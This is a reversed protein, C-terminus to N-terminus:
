EGDDDGYDDEGIVKSAQCNLCIGQDEEDKELMQSCIECVKAM